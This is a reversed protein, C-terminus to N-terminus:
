QWFPEYETEPVRSKSCTLYIVQREQKLSLLLKYASKIREDDFYVLPDDLIIFPKENEYLADTVALRTCLSYLERTGKSYADAERLVAGERKKPTLQSTLVFDSKANEIESLYFNFADKIKDLYRASMKESATKLYREAGEIAFLRRKAASEKKILEDYESLVDEEKEIEGEREKIAARLELLESELSSIEEIVSGTDLKKPKEKSLIRQKILLLGENIDGSVGNEVLYARLSERIGEEKQLDTSNEGVRESNREKKLYHLYLIFFPISFVSVLALWREIFFLLPALALTFIFLLLFTNKNKRKKFRGLRESLTKESKRDSIEKLRESLSIHEYLREIESLERARTESEGAEKEKKLLALRECAGRERELLSARKEKEEEIKKLRAALRAKRTEIDYIEGAGGRKRYFKREEDLVSLAADLESLAEDIKEPSTLKALVTKNENKGSLNEESLFLTRLFGDSDLGFLERGINEGYDNSIKGTNLDYLTFTDQSPKEGFSREIRYAGRANEFSLSGRAAKGGWPLYRKRENELVSQKRSDELGYFMAKIFACFTSKGTGNETVAISIGDSLTFGRNNLVGFSEIFIERIKM